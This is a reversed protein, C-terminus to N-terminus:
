CLKKLFNSSCELLVRVLLTVPRWRPGFRLSGTPTAHAARTQLTKLNLKRTIQPNDAVIKWEVHM